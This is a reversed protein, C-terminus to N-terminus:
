DNHEANDEVESETGQTKIEEILQLVVQEAGDLAHFNALAREKNAKLEERKRYLKELIKDDM